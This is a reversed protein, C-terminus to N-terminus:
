CDRAYHDRKPFNYCKVKSKDFRSKLDEELDIEEEEKAKDVDEVGKLIDLVM